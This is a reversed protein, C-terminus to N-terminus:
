LIRLGWTFARFTIYLHNFFNPVIGFHHQLVSYRELLSKMHHKKSMGGELYKSLVSRTHVIRVSRRLCNIVWDIDSSFRYKERFYPAKSRRMIFSQHCVAMGRAMHRWTLSEPLRHPTVVSRLGINEGSGSIYMADGYYVDGDAPILETLRELTNEDFVEDGANIFWLYSGRAMKIGKNMAHYIGRDPESIWSTRVDASRRILDVTGDDSAGDVIVHEYDRYTQSQVSRITKELLESGNRVVTIISLLPPHSSM